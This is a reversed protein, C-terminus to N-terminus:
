WRRLAPTTSSMEDLRQRLPHTQHITRALKPPELQDHEPPGRLTPLNLQDAPQAIPARGLDGRTPAIQPQPCFCLRRKPRERRRSRQAQQSRPKLTQARTTRAPM